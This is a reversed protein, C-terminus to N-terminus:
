IGNAEKIKYIRSATGFFLADRETPSLGASLRMMANWGTVYSYSGKDVPFNSEFMCREVGFLDICTYVWPQWTMALTESSPAQAFHEFGFGSLAMGLGGIKVTVNPCKSLEAMAARWQEFIVDRRDAYGGIGLIGGCHNLVIQVDPFLRALAALKPIQHFFIWADFSLGLVALHAIGARFEARNMVDESTPYAPNLLRADADWALIHRIGRFRNRGASIHADLVPRVADGLRLDAYGVIAACLKPGDSTNATEAVAAAYETEGIPRFAEPCDTRYFSRAQVFVTAIVNLDTGIDAKLDEELYTQDARDFLHHHADIIPQDQDIVAERHTALWDEKISTHTFRQM